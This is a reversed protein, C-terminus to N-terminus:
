GRTQPLQEEAIFEAILDAVLERLDGADGAEQSIEAMKTEAQAMVAAAKAKDAEAKALKAANEASSLQEEIGQEIVAQIEEQSPPPPAEEAGEEPQEDLIEPPIMKKLRKAFEDAGPWDMNKAVLDGIVQWLDPNANLMEGMVAAAEERQTSYSPGAKVILDFKGVSLDNIVITKGTEEDLVTQNLAVFDESDDPFRLRIQRETDYLKPIASILIRGVQRISRVMNDSFAFSGLNGKRQLAIEQKGSTAGSRQGMSSDFMNSTAKIDDSAQMSQQVEGPNGMVPPERQPKPIGDIHNYQLYSYNKLNAQGWTVEYGEIQRADLIYPVKPTLATREIDASRSYNYMRQADKSHRIAGRYRPTGDVVLEKGFVPVIPIWDFITEREELIEDASIKAWMCKKGDAKRTRVCTIGREALEDAIPEFKDQDIVRGDSLQCIEFVHDKLYYYDAIFVFDADAWMEYTDSGVDISGQKKGPYKTEFDDKHIKSFLFGWEIDSGDPEQCDPDIIVSKYNRVRKIKIEQDFSGPTWETVIQIFGLGHGACQEFATDYAIDANSSYEINRIIGEYVEALSYDNTGAINQVKNNGGQVDGQAPFVAVSPRMQRQDGVIQDVIAPLKNFTLCPRDGREDRVSQPWQEGGHLFDIDEDMDRYNVDWAELAYKARRRATQLFDSKNKTSTTDM